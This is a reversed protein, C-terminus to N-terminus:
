MIITLEIYVEVNPPSFYFVERFRRRFGSDIEGPVNTICILTIGFNDSRNPDTEMLMASTLDSDSNSSSKSRDRLLYECEDILGFCPRNNRLMMFFATLNKVSQGKWTSNVIKPHLNFVMSINAEKVAAYFCKTKSTGPVGYFLLMNLQDKEYPFVSPYKLKNVLEMKIDKKVGELGIIDNFTIKQDVEVLCKKKMANAIEFLNDNHGDLNVDETGVQLQNLVSDLRMLIIKQQNKITEHGKYKESHAMKEIQDSLEQLKPKAELYNEEQILSLVKTYLDLIEKM